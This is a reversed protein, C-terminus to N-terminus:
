KKTSKELLIVLQDAIHLLDQDKIHERNSKIVKLVFTEKPDVLPPKFEINGYKSDYAEIFMDALAIAGINNTKRLDIMCLYVGMLPVSEIKTLRAM